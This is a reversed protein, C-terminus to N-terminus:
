NWNVEPLTERTDGAPVPPMGIEGPGSGTLNGLGDVSMTTLGLKPKSNLPKTYRWKLDANLWAVPEAGTGINMPDSMATDLSVKWGWKLAIDLPKVTFNTIYHGKKGPKDPFPLSGHFFSVEYVIDVARGQLSSDVSFRYTKTVKRWDQMDDWNFSFGPIASAYSTSLNASPRNNVIVNWVKAGAMIILGAAVVPLRQDEKSVGFFARAEERSLPASTESLLTTSDSLDQQGASVPVCPTLLLLPLILILFKKIM